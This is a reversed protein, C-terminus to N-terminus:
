NKWIKLRDQAVRFARAKTLYGDGFWVSGLRRSDSYGFRRHDILETVGNYAAWLTGPVGKIDTGRGQDFFHEAFLRDREMRELARENSPDKPAPFVDMLYEALRETDLRVRSMASFDEEIEAYYNHVIGLLQESQKLRLQLDKTHALRITPGRSLAMTLTNSCVVRIPTFKVQVASKGDHSNSLLLFKNVIDDGVVRIDSPLKALIWVRQGQALVGATHYVAADKGVIPDFFEFAARNQLPTYGNGVVGLVRCDGSGLTDKRVIAYKNYVKSRHEGAHIYLPTKVVKWDLEAAKLAEEATAPGDLETGLGHWPADGTYFMSARGNKIELDHSMNGDKGKLKMNPPAPPRLPDYGEAMEGRCREAPRGCGGGELPTVINTM